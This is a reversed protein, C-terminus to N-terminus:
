AKKYVSAANYNPSPANPDYGRANYQYTVSRKGETTVRETRTGVHGRSEHTRFTSQRVVASGQSSRSGTSSDRSLM